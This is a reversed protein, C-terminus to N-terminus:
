LTLTQKTTDACNTSFYLPLILLMSRCCHSIVSVTKWAIREMILNECTELHKIIDKSLTPEAKIFSEIVKYFDFAALNFVNLIWPFCVDTEAQDGGGHNCGGNKFSSESWSSCVVNNRKTECVFSPLKILILSLQLICCLEIWKQSFYLNTGEYTAMVVELACALLSTHFTSDNLLKSSLSWLYLKQEYWEHTELQQLKASYLYFHISNLQVTMSPKLSGWCCRSSECDASCRSCIGSIKCLCVSRKRHIFFFIL